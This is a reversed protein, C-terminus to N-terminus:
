RFKVDHHKWWNTNCDTTRKPGLRERRWRTNKCKWGRDVFKYTGDVREAILIAHKTIFDEKIYDKGLNEFIPVAFIYTYKHQILPFVTNNLIVTGFNIKNGEVYNLEKYRNKAIGVYYWGDPDTKDAAIRRRILTSENRKGVAFSGIWWRCKIGTLLIRVKDCVYSKLQVMGYNLVKRIFKPHEEPFMKHLDFVYDDMTKTEGLTNYELNNNKEIIKTWDRYNIPIINTKGKVTHVVAPIYATFDTNIWDLDEFLWAHNIIYERDVQVMSIEITSGLSSYMAFIANNEIIDLLFLDTFARFISKM